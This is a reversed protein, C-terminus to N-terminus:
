RTCTTWPPPFEMLFLSLTITSNAVRNGAVISSVSAAISMAHVTPMKVPIKAAVRCFENKSPWVLEAKRADDPGAFM